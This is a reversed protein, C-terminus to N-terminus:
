WRRRSLRKKFKRRRTLKRKYGGWIGGSPPMHHILINTGNSNMFLGGDITIIPILAPKTAGDIDTLSIAQREGYTEILFQEPEKDELSRRMKIYSRGDFTHEVWIYPVIKRGYATLYEYFPQIYHLADSIIAVDVGDLADSDSYAGGIMHYGGAQVAYFAKLDLESAPGVSSAGGGGAGGGAGGSAAAPADRDLYMGINYSFTKGLTRYGKIRSDIDVKMAQVIAAFQEEIKNNLISETISEGVAGMITASAAACRGKIADGIDGGELSRKLREGVPTRGSVRFRETTLITTMVDMVMANAAELKPQDDASSYSDPSTLIILKRLLVAIYETSWRGLSQDIMRQIIIRNASTYEKEKPLAITRITEGTLITDIINRVSLGLANLQRVRMLVFYAEGKSDHERNIMEALPILYTRKIYDSRSAIFSAKTVGATKFLGHVAGCDYSGNSWISSLTLQLNVEDIVFKKTADNFAIWKTNTKVQNCCRHAYAYEYRYYNIDAPTLTAASTILGHYGISTFADIIHECEPSDIGSGTLRQGCIYCLNWMTPAKCVREAYICQSSATLPEFLNRIPCGTDGPSLSGCWTSYFETPDQEITWPNRATQAKIFDCISNLQPVSASYTELCKLSEIENYFLSTCHNWLGAVSTITSPPVVMLERTKKGSASPTPPGIERKDVTGDKALFNDKRKSRPPKSVKTSAEAQEMVSQKVSRALRQRLSGRPPASSAGGGAGASSSM